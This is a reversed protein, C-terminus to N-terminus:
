LRAWFASSSDMTAVARTALRHLTHTVRAYRPPRSRLPHPQPRKRTHGPHVFEMAAASTRAPCRSSYGPSTRSPDSLPPSSSLSYYSLLRPHGEIPNQSSIKQESNSNKSHAERRRADSAAARAAHPACAARAAPRVSPRRRTAGATNTHTAVRVTPPVRDLGRVTSPAALCSFQFPRQCGSSMFRQSVM